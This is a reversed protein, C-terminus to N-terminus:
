QTLPTEEMGLLIKSPTKTKLLITRLLNKEGTRAMGILGSQAFVNWTHRMITAKNSEAVRRLGLGGESKTLMNFELSSGEHTIM